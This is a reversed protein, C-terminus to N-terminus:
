SGQLEVLKILSGQKVNDSLEMGNLIALEEFRKNDMKFSRFVESLKATKKVTAIKIVEPVVNLKSPDTLKKFGEMASIMKNRYKQFDPTGAVGLLMYITQGYQIFYAVIELGSQGNQGAQSAYAVTANFGNVQTQDMGKSTLQNDQIFKQAAARTSTGQALQLQLLAKGSEPAHQVMSPSNVTKWGRPVPYQFKMEPHYFVNNKVYGQKPDEGYILGDIRKLYLDRNIKFKKGSSKQQAEKTLEEVKEFRDMPHPHTSLFTPIDAAGSKKSIRSLTKFFGAMEASDYGIKTSYEVGLRDSQSEADRGFKLFLLGLSQSATEGFQRFQPSLVMGLVLGIQAVISKSQQKATHRATIHGIEHGLVGAFEAENNFHAMIGRTFYVYGGPVAFANVVPSDLIKFEYNLHSRHSIRAMAQGKQEIFKQLKDDNYLGFTSLVSPDYQKGLAIERKESMLMFDRKGTVPNRACSYILLVTFTLSLIKLLANKRFM